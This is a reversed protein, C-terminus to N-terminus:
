QQATPQTSPPTSYLFSELVNTHRTVSYNDSYLLVSPHRVYAVDNRAQTESLQFELPYNILGVGAQKVEWTGDMGDFEIIIEEDQSYPIYMNQAIDTWNKPM